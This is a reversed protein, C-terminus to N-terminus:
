AAQVIQTLGPVPYKTVLIKAVTIFLVSALGIGVINYANFRINSFSEATGVKRGVFVFAAFLVALAVWWALPHGAVGRAAPASVMPGGDSAVAAASYGATDPSMASSASGLTGGSADPYINRAPMYNIDPAFIDGHM